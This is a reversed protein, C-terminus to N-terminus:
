VEEILFLFLFIFVISTQLLFVKILLFIILYYTNVINTENISITYIGPPREFKVFLLYSQCFSIMEIIPCERSKQQPLSKYLLMKIPIKESICQHRACVTYAM